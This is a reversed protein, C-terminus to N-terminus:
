RTQLRIKSIHCQRLEDMLFTVSKLPVNEDVIFLIARNEGSKAWRNVQQKLQMWDVEEEGIFYHGFQDMGIVWEEFTQSRSATKMEPPTIDLYRSERFQMTILFFFILVALVDVLPVINVEIRFRRRRRNNRM